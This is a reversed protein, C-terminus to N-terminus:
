TGFTLYLIIINLPFNCFYVTLKLGCTIQIADFYRMGDVKGKGPIQQIWATQAVQGNTEQHSELYHSKSDLHQTGTDKGFYGQCQTEMDIDDAEICKM